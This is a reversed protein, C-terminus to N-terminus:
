HTEGREPPAAPGAAADLPRRLVLADEVPHRYYGRRKGVLEFGRSDYLRRAATNSVRVELWMAECEAVVAAALGADLLQAGLGRGRWAPAVAINMVEGEGSIFRCMAYGVLIGGPAEAVMFWGYPDDFESEFSPAGWPDSFVVHEIALIAPVDAPVAPRLRVPLSTM